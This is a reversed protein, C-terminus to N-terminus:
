QHVSKAATRRTRAATTRTPDTLGLLCRLGEVTQAGAVRWEGRRANVAATRWAFASSYLLGRRVARLRRGTPLLRSIVMLAAVRETINAGTRVRGATDSAGHRRYEALVEDVFVIPGMAALRTWMEWDAAHPLDERFGGVKEYASRRVVIGAPRIRNSVSLLPLAKTWLGTGARYSRTAGRPTGHEDIYRTRCVAAAAHTRDLAAGMREYFGPLVGDDGHLLHVFEGKALGVAYNFTGVAGLRTPTRLYRVTGSTREVVARPNDSSDDDVVTVEADHRGELQAVVGSLTHELFEECNHVPILM